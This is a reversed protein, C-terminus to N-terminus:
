RLTKQSLDNWIETVRELLEHVSDFYEGQLKGKLYGFLFFDSQAIDPSYPPHPAKKMHNEELFRTVKRATHPRANDYHLTVKRHSREQLEKTKESLDKLIDKIFYQANFKENELLVKLLLLVMQIGFLQSCTNKLYLQKEKGLKRHIKLLFGNFHIIQTCILDAKM